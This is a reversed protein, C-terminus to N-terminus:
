WVRGDRADRLLREYEFIMGQFGHEKEVWNRVAPRHFDRSIWEGMEEVDKCVWGTIGHKVHYETGDGPLCLTPTGCAGAELPLRPAADLNSPHLLFRAGGIKEWKNEGVEGSMFVLDIEAMDAAERAVGIGKHHHPASAFIVYPHDDHKDYFPIRTIDIGTNVLEATPHFTKMYPSNVVSNPGRRGERDGFRNVYPYRPRMKWYSHTHSTDLVADVGEITEIVDATRGEHYYEILEGHPFVSGAGALMVVEHGFETLGRAIDSASMGLGHGGDPRTPLRCDSIVVIKM